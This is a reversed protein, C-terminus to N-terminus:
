EYTFERDNLTLNGSSRVDYQAGGKLKKIQEDVYAATNM